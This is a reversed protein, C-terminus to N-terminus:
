HAWSVSLFPLVSLTSSNFSSIWEYLCLSYTISSQASCHIFLNQFISLIEYVIKQITISTIKNNYCGSIPFVVMVVVMLVVYFSQQLAVIFAFNLTKLYKFCAESNSVFVSALLPFPRIVNSSILIQMKTNGFSM